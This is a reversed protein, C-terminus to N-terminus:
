KSDNNEAAGCLGQHYKRKNEYMMNDAETYIEHVNKGSDMMCAYGIAASLSVGHLYLGKLEDHLNKALRRAGEIDTHNCMIAFEDGGVRFPIDGKGINAEIAAAVMGLMEDGAKHGYTDNMQKLHNCDLVLISM